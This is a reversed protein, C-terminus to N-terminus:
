NSVHLRISLVEANGPTPANMVKVICRLNTSGVATYGIGIGTVYSAARGNATDTCNFPIVGVLNLIDAASVSFAANDNVATVAQDFIWLEGQLATGASTSFVADTITGSAGSSRGANALTFGGVTPSSTSDAWCDNATYANTDAPRTITTSVTTVSQGAGPVPNSASVAVANGNADLYCLTVPNLPAGM